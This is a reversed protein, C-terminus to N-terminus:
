SNLLDLMMIGGMAQLVRQYEWGWNQNQCLRWSATKHMQELQSKNGLVSELELKLSTVEMRYENLERTAQDLFEKLQQV